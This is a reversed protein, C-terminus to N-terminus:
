ADKSEEKNDEDPGSDDKSAEEKADGKAEKKSDEKDEKTDEEQKVDEKSEKDASTKQKKASGGKSGKGGKKRKKQEEKEGTAVFHLIRKIVEKKKGTAKIGHEKCYVALDPLNFNDYLDQYTKFKDGITSTPPAVWKERKAAPEKKDDAAEDEDKKDKKVKEKPKKDAKKDTKKETKKKEKTDKTGKKEQKPKETELPELEFIHMMLADVLEKKSGSSNLSMQSAHDSLLKKTLKNFFQEAGTLMVEDAVQQKMVPVAGVDLGLTSSMKKLVAEPVASVLGNIGIKLTEAEVSKADGNTSLAKGIDV